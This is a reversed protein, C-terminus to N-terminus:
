ARTEFGVQSARSSTSPYSSPPAASLKAEPSAATDATM